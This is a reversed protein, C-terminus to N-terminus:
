CLDSGTAGTWIKNTHRPSLNKLPPVLVRGHEDSASLYSVGEAGLPPAVTPLGSDISSAKLGADVVLRGPGPTSMIETLVFLSSVFSDDSADLPAGSEDQISNYDGDMFAYSGAQLENWLGTSAEMPATGTGAGSVKPCAIGVALLSDLAIQVQAAASAIADAREQYDRIHQAKGYYAQLGGFRLHPQAEIHQAVAVLEPGKVGCRQFGGAFPISPDMGAPRDFDLEVLVDLHVNALACAAEICDVGEVCDACVGLWELGPALTCLRALKRPSVVENSVLINRIGAEAMVEAEGVKQCCLGVAGNAVQQLAVAPCKHMKFHPRLAVGFGEALRSMKSLNDEFVDLEVVLAPTDIDQESDGIRAPPQVLLPQQAAPDEWRTAASGSVAPTPAPVLHRLICGVVGSWDRREMRPVLLLTAEEAAKRTPPRWGVAPLSARGAAVRIGKPM